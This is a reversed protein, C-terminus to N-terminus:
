SQDLRPFLPQGKTVRLGDALFGWRKHDPWDVDLHGRELGLRCWIEAATLPMFPYILTALMRLGEALLYLVTDLQDRAAPDKALAWPKKENIYRDLATQGEWVRALATAFEFAPMAREYDAFIEEFKRRIALEDAEDCPATKITGGANKEIMTLSRSLLNGIGNALDANYRERLNDEVFEGDGGYNAERLLYYRLTEAGYDNILDFPDIVNGRSKSMKEKNVLVFGHGFVQRPLELGAAILMAPWIITHFKLIDKGVVHCDPPWWRKWDESAGYGIGSLYNTLADFWVYIINGHDGPVDIGWHITSRSVCLDELGPKIFSGMMERARFNPACFDPHEAFLREIQQQFESLKFFYAEEKMRRIYPDDTTIGRDKMELETIYSEERTNYWGEYHGRYLYGADAVTRWLTHVAAKHRAQTTRIFDNNSIELKQYLDRFVGSLEDVLAEPSVDREVAQNQIKQGHEDTGTLFFVDHGLLRRFRAQVDTGVIEFVHGLHPRANPYSIATTIFFKGQSGM